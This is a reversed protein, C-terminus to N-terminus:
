PTKMQLFGMIGMKNAFNSFIIPNKFIKWIFVFIITHSSIGLLNFDDPPGSSVCLLSQQQIINVPKGNKLSSGM